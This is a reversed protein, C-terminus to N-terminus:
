GLDFYMLPSPDSSYGTATFGWGKVTAPRSLTLQFAAQSGGIPVMSTVVGGSLSATSGSITVGSFNIVMTTANPYTVTATPAQGKDANFDFVVRTYGVAQGAKPPQVKCCQIHQIQWGSGGAGFTQAPSAASPVATAGATASVAGSPGASAPATAQQSPAGSSRGASTPTSRPLNGGAVGPSSVGAHTALLVIVVLLIAAVAVAVWRPHLRIPSGAMRSQMGSYLGRTHRGPGRRPEAAPPLPADSPVRRPPGPLEEATTPQRLPPSVGHDSQGLPIWAGAAVPAAAAPEGWVGPRPPGPRQQDDAPQAAPESVLGPWSEATLRAGAGPLSQQPVPPPAVMDGAEEEADIPETRRMLALRLAVRDRLRSLANPRVLAPPAAPPIRALVPDVLPDPLPEGGPAEATPAPPPPPPPGASWARWQPPEIAPTGPAPLDQEARRAIGDTPPRDQIEWSWPDETEADSRQNEPEKGIPRDQVAWSWPDDSSSESLDAGGGGGRADGLVPREHVVRSWPGDSPSEPVKPAPPEPQGEVQEVDPLRSVERLHGTVRDDNDEAAATPTEGEVRLVGVGMPRPLHLPPSIPSGTTSSQTTVSLQTPRGSLHLETDMAAPDARVPDSRRGLSASSNFPLSPQDPPAQDPEADRRPNWPLTRGSPNGTLWPPADGPPASPRPPRPPLEDDPGILGLQDLLARAGEDPIHIRALSGIRSVEERLYELGKHCRECGLLHAEVEARHAADLEDDLYSSLTLLSCRM